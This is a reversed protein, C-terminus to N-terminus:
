AAHEGFTAVFPRRRHDNVAQRAGPSRHQFLRDNLRHPPFLLQANRNDGFDRFERPLSAIQSLCRTENFVPHPRVRRSKPFPATKRANRLTKSYFSIRLEEPASRPTLQRFVFGTM